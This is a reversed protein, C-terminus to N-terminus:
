SDPKSNNGNSKRKMVGGFLAKFANVREKVDMEKSKELEIEKQYKKVWESSCTLDFAIWECIQVGSLEAQVQEVTM